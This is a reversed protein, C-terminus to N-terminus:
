DSKMSAILEELRSADDLVARLRGSGDLVLVCPLERIGWSRVFAGGWGLGDNSQPFRLGLEESVRATKEATADLSVGLVRLQPTRQRLQEVRKVCDCSAEVFGAWVVIVTPQGRWDGAEVLQGDITTFSWALEHGVAAVRRWRGALTETTAHTPFHTRLLDVLAKMEDGDGRRAADDFLWEALRPVHRSTSHQQVYRRYARLTAADPELAPASAPQTEPSRSAERRCLIEWYAAEQLVRESPPSSLLERVQRCLRDLGEGRLTGLEFLARLEIEIVADRHAGGPYLTLYLRVRELLSEQRKIAANFWQSYPQTAPVASRLAQIRQWLAEEPSAAAERDQVDPSGREVDDPAALRAHAWCPCAGALTVMLVLVALRRTM